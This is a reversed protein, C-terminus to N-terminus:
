KPSLLISFLEEFIKVVRIKCLALQFHIKYTKFCNVKTTENEKFFNEKKKLYKSESKSSSKFFFRVKHKKWMPGLKAWVFLSVKKTPLESELNPLQVM